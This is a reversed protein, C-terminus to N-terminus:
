AFGAFRINDMRQFYRFEHHVHAHIRRADGRGNQVIHYLVSIVDGDFANFILKARLDCFKYVADGLQGLASLLRIDGFFLFLGFVKSFQKKGDRRINAHDDDLEGVTQMVHARQSVTVRIFAGAFCFFRQLDVSGKRMAEAHAGDFALHFVERKHIEHRLFIGIDTALKAFLLRLSLFRQVVGLSDNAFLKGGRANFGANASARLMKVADIALHLPLIGADVFDVVQDGDADNHVGYVVAVSCQAHDVRAPLRQRSPKLVINSRRFWVHVARQMSSQECRVSDRKLHLDAGLLHVLRRFKADGCVPHILFPAIDLAQQVFLGAPQALDDFGLVGSLVALFKYVADHLIEEALVNEHERGFPFDDVQRTTGCRQIKGIADMGIDPMM